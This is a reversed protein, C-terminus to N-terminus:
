EDADPRDDTVRLVGIWAPAGDYEVDGGSVEVTLREGDARVGTFTSDFSKLEGEDSSEIKGFFWDRDDTATIRAPSEGMLECQEYGFMEALKQNVYAFERDQVICVGAIEQEVLRQYWSLANWFQEETRCQSVANEVRNALVEYQDTGTEKQMYDTVGAAIADSAIEESGQGTFLIFPVDTYQERVIELFELGDMNPMQYDSVICDIRSERLHDMAAVASTETVVTFDDNIRELFTQLLEGIQPDDDVHLVRIGQADQMKALPVPVETHSEETSGSSQTRIFPVSRNSARRSGRISSRSLEVTEAPFASSGDM